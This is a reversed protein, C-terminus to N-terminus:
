RGCLRQHRRVEEDRLEGPDTSLAALNRRIRPCPDAEYGANFVAGLAAIRQAPSPPPRVRFRGDAPPPPGRHELPAAHFDIPRGSDHALAQEIFVASLGPTPPVPPRPDAPTDVPAPAAASRTRQPSSPVVPDLVRPHLDPRPAPMRAPLAREIWVVQLPEAGRAGPQPASQGFLLWGIALAPLLLAATAAAIRDGAPMREQARM